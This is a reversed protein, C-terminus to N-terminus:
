NLTFIIVKLMVMVHKCIQSLKKKNPAHQTTFSKQFNMKKYKHITLITAFKIM